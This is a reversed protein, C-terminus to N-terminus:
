AHAAEIRDPLAVGGREGALEDIEAKTGYEHADVQAGDIARESPSSEIMRQEVLQRRRDIGATLIALEMREHEVPRPEGRRDRELRTRNALFRGECEAVQQRGSDRMDRITESM